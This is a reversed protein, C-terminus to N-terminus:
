EKNEFYLYCSSEKVNRIDGLKPSDYDDKLRVVCCQKTRTSECIFHLGSQYNYGAIHLVKVEDGHQDLWKESQSKARCGICVTLILFSIIKKM